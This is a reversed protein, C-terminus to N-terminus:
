RSRRRREVTNFVDVASRLDPLIAGGRQPAHNAWVKKFSGQYGLPNEDNPFLFPSPGAIAMQDRFAELALETLPVEAIGSETKSDPIWVLANKLDVDEKKMPTLEKYVRLGTETIIRVVNRLYQPAHQEIKQQESWTVYHPRFLRKVRM